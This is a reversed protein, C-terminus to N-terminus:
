KRNPWFWMGVRAYWSPGYSRQWSINRNSTTELTLTENVPDIGYIKNTDKYVNTFHIPQLIILASIYRASTLGLNSDCQVFNDKQELLMDNDDDLIVYNFDVGVKLHKYNKGNDSHIHTDIWQDIEVGRPIVMHIKSSKDLYQYARITTGVVKDCYKFGRSKLYDITDTLTSKRWSSSIVIEAGTAELLKGLNDQCSDVLGWGGEQISEPTALVGDIDLFIYKKM